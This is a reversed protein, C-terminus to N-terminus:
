LQPEALHRQAATILRRDAAGAVLGAASFVKFAVVVNTAAIRMAAEVECGPGSWYADVQAQPLVKMRRQANILFSQATQFELLARRLRDTAAAQDQLSSTM